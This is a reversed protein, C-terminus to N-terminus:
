CISLVSLFNCWRDLPVALDPVLTTLSPRPTNNLCLQPDPCEEPACKQKASPRVLKTLEETWSDIIEAAIVISPASDTACISQIPFHEVFFAATV